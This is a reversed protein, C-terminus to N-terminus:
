YTGTIGIHLISNQFDGTVAGGRTDGIRYTTGADLHFSDSLQYAATVSLSGFTRVNGGSTHVLDYGLRGRVHTRENMAYEVILNARDLRQFPEAVAFGYRREYGTKLDIIETLDYTLHMAVDLTSDDKTDSEIRSIGALLNVELTSLPEGRLGARFFSGDSDSPASSHDYDIGLLGANVLYEIRSSARYVGTVMARYNQNDLLRFSGISTDVIQLNYTGELALVPSVDVSIRSITDSVIRDARDSFIVNIPDSERRLIEVLELTVGPGLWRVRGFLREEDGSEKDQDLYLNYNIMADVVAEFQPEAYDMRARLFTVFISDSNENSRELYINDDFYYLEGGELTLTLPRDRLDEGAVLQEHSVRDIWRAGFDQAFARGVFLLVIPFMWLVSRCMGNASGRVGGRRYPARSGWFSDAHVPASGSEKNTESSM